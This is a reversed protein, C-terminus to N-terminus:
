LGLASELAKAKFAQKQDPFTKVLADLLERNVNDFVIYKWPDGAMVGHVLLSAINDVVSGMRNVDFSLVKKGDCVLEFKTMRLNKSNAFMDKLKTEGRMLGLLNGIAEEATDAPSVNTFNNWQPVQSKGMECFILNYYFKKQEQEM